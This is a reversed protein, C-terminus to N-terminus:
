ANAIRHSQEPWGREEAIARITDPRFDIAINPKMLLPLVLSKSVVVPWTADIVNNSDSSITCIAPPAQMKGAVDLLMRASLSQQGPGREIFGLYTGTAQEITRSVAIELPTDHPVQNWKIRPDHGFRGRLDRGMDFRREGIDCICLEWDDDASNGLGDIIQSLVHPEAEWENAHLLVSLTCQEPVLHSDKSLAKSPVLLGIVKSIIIRAVVTFGFASILAILRGPTKIVNM